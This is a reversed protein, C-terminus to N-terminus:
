GHITEDPSAVRLDVTDGSGSFYLALSAFAIREGQSKEAEPEFVQMSVLLVLSFYILMACPM